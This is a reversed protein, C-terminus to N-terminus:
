PQMRGHKGHGGSNSTWSVKVHDLVAALNADDSDQLCALQQTRRLVAPLKGWKSGEPFCFSGQVFQAPLDEQERSAVVYKM